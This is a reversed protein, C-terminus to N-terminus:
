TYYSYCKQQWLVYSYSSFSFCEYWRDVLTVLSGWLYHIDYCSIRYRRFIKFCSWLHLLHFSFDRFNPEKFIGCFIFFPNEIFQLLLLLLLLFNVLLMFWMHLIHPYSLSIFLATLLLAIYILIQCLFVTLLLTNFM